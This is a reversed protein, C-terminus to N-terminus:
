LDNLKKALLEAGSVINVPEDMDKHFYIFSVARVASKFFDMPFDTRAGKIIDPDFNGRLWFYWAPGGMAETSRYEFQFLATGLENCAFLSGNDNSIIKTNM